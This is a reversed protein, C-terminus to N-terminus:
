ATRKWMYVVVYPQLNTHSQGGGTSATTTSVNSEDFIHDMLDGQAVTIKLNTDVLVSDPAQMRMNSDHTHAPIQAESLTVTSSGGTEEVTNFNSDSSKQGVLVRGSGFTSWTTGGIANVVAASNAYNNVTTFISGIPYVVDTLAGAAIKAATVADTALQTTGIGGDKVIIKQPSSSDLATTTNDVAGSAFTASDVLADLNAATVQDGTSFDTGKSLIAM